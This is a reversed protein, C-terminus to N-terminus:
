KAPKGVIIKFGDADSVYIYGKDDVAVAVPDTFPSNGDPDRLTKVAGTPTIKRINKNGDDAVYVNGKSDVAVGKPNQFRAASGIGDTTGIDDASGALISVTNRADIKRITTKDTGYLNGYGDVAVGFPSVFRASKANGDVSKSEGVAGAVATVEGKPTIKRIIYNNSDAVYVNGAKDVAVGTPNNFHAASGNGSAYGGIGPRSAGTDPSGALTTVTGDPAVKRITQSSSDAVYVNNSADVAVGVPYWFRADAGVGDMYGYKEASGALTSVAGKATIKRILHNGRDGVAVNGNSDVAVGHPWKFQAAAGQGDRSGETGGALVNFVYDEYDYKPEPPPTPLITEVFALRPKKGSRVVRYILQYLEGSNGQYSFEIREKPLWKAASFYDQVKGDPDNARTRVRDLEKEPLVAEKWAGQDEVFVQSDTLNRGRDINLAFAKSDQRWFAKIRHRTDEAYFDEIPIKGLVSSDRLSKVEVRCTEDSEAVAELRYNGDPSIAEDIEIPSAARADIGSIVFLLSAFITSLYWSMEEKRRDPMDRINACSTMQGPSAGVKLSAIASGVGFCKM